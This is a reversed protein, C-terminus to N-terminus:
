EPNNLNFPGGTLWDSRLEEVLKYPVVYRNDDRIKMLIQGLFNRGKGDCKPCTCIGWYQDHWKTGEVLVATGTEELLKAAETGREFKQRLIEYMIWFKRDEWDPRLPVRRGLRKAIGPTAAQSILTKDKKNHTKAAQFAAETTQFKFGEYEIECPAFNSLFENPGDFSSIVQTKGFVGDIRPM